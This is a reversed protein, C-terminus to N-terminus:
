WTVSHIGEQQSTVKVAEANEISIGQTERTGFYIVLVGLADSLLTYLFIGNPLKLNFSDLSALVVFPAVGGGIVGVNYMFGVGTARVNPPLNEALTTPYIGSAGVIWFGSFFAFVCALPVSLQAVSVLAFVCACGFALMLAIAGKRGIREAIFGSCFFGCIQGIAGASTIVSVSSPAMHLGRLFTPLLGQLPWSGFQLLVMLLSLVIVLSRHERFLTLIPSTGRSVLGRERTKLWVPSEPVFRYIFLGLLFGPLVGVFFLPRWGFRPYILGYLAAALVSGFGWGTCVIGIGIARYKEPWLEAIMTSGLTLIPAMGFGLLLRFMLVASFSWSLGTFAAGSTFWVLAILMPVKRGIRDSLNGFIMGGLWRVGFTALILLSATHLSVNFTRSIDILVFTILLFDMADLVWLSWAGVLTLWQDRNLDRYWRRKYMSSPVSISM